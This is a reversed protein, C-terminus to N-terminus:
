IAVVKLAETSRTVGHGQQQSQQLCYVGHVLSHDARVGGQQRAAPGGSSSGACHLARRPSAVTSPCPLRLEAGCPSPTTKNM